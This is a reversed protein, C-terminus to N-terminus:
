SVAVVPKFKAVVASELRDLELQSMLGTAFMTRLDSNGSQRVVNATVIVNELDNSATRKVTLEVRPMLSPQHQFFAGAEEFAGGRLAAAILAANAAPAFLIVQEPGYWQQNAESFPEIAAIWSWFVTILVVVGYEFAKFVWYGVGSLVVKPESSIFTIGLQSQLQLYGPFGIEGTQSELFQDGFKDVSADTVPTNRDILSQRFVDKFQLQYLSYHYTGILAFVSIVGLLTAIAGNRIKGFKIAKSLVTMIAIGAFGPFLIFLYIGTYRRIVYLVGGAIIATVVGAILAILIGPIPAIGSPKYTRM